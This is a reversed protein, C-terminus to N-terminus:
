AAGGDIPAFKGDMRKLKGIDTLIRLVNTLRDNSHGPAMGIGTPRLLPGDPFFRLSCKQGAGMKRLTTQLHSLATVEVIEEMLISFPEDGAGEIISIAREGPSTSKREFYGDRRAARTQEATAVLLAIASFAQDPIPLHRLDGTPIPKGNFLDRPVSAVAEAGNLNRAESVATWESALLPSPDLTSFWSSVVQSITAKEFEALSSTLASLMLELAFHCRRRYEYEAWSHATESIQDGKFAIESIQDGRACNKFNRVILASASEHETALLEKAWTITGNFAEYAKSVRHREAETGPDWPTALADYLLDAESTSRDLSGLSFEPIAAEAQARSIEGGNLINTITPSAQLRAKRLAWIETGRPSLRYPITEDGDLLFGITRCPAFYTGLMAGGSDEPFTVTGGAVLTALQEKHLTAGLAGSSDAGNLESDLRSAALVVFEIRRLYASLSDWDFGTPAHEAFYEGLAWPLISFYRARQSITTIGNVLGLEVAQDVGRVGLIDLGQTTDLFDDGWTIIM